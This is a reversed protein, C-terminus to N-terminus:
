LFGVNYCGNRKMFVIKKMKYYIEIYFKDFNSSIYKYIDNNTFFMTRIYPLYKKFTKWWSIKTDYSFSSNNFYEEDYLCKIIISFSCLKYPIIDIPLLAHTKDCVKCKVRKIKIRKKVPKCNDEIIVNREYYGHCILESSNCNPCTIDMNTKGNNYKKIKDIFNKNFKSKILKLYLLIM